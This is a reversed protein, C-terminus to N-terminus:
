AWNTAASPASGLYCINMNAATSTLSSGSKFSIVHSSASKFIGLQGAGPASSAIIIGPTGLLTITATTFNTVVLAADGNSMSVLLIKCSSNTVTFTKSNQVTITNSFGGVSNLPISNFTSLTAIEASNTTGYLNGSSDVKIRQSGGTVLSLEDTGSSYIGTNSDGSFAFSPASTSGAPGLLPSGFTKSGNITQTAETLVFSAAAGPDPITITRDATAISAVSIIANNSATALKLHDSTASSIIQSSFTKSGTFTQTGELAVFTGAASIDPVTWIRSVAQPASMFTLTNSSTSLVLHNSTATILIQSSFTKIGAIQQSGQTMVFNADAGVDDITYVRNATSHNAMLLSASFNGGSPAIFGLYGTAVGPDAVIRLRGSFGSVLGGLQAFGRAVILGGVSGSNTTNEIIVSGAFDTQGFVDSSVSYGIQGTTILGAPSTVLVKNATLTSVLSDLTFQLSDLVVRLKPYTVTGKAKIPANIITAM